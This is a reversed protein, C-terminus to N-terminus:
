FVNANSLPKYEGGAARVKQQNIQRALWSPESRSLNGKGFFGRRWLVLTEETVPLWVSRSIADFIGELHPTSIRAASFGFIGLFSTGLRKAFSDTSIPEIILPLPNAYIRNNEGRRSSGGKGGGRGRRNSMTVTSTPPAYQCRSESTLIRILARSSRRDNKTRVRRSRAELM